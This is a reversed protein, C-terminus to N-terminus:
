IKSHKIAERYEKPTKGTQRKFIKSFYQVDMIGCHLSVTQIQLDTTSFLHMARNIRRERIYETLTEGTEKKFVGSLYPLSVGALEALKVPALDAGLDYSILSVVKQVVASYGRVTHKRVMRCYSEYMERMLASCAKAATLKEIKIAYDTSMKDIFVPHVGGQEASKRLLTNMIIAYNKLNRLQDAARMEFGGEGLASILQNVKQLNGASVSHMLENEFSYRKEILKMHLASSELDGSDSVSDFGLMSADGRQEMDVISYQRGEYARELFVNLFLFLESDESLSPISIMHKLYLPHLKPDIKERELAERLKTETQEADSYPGLYVSRKGKGKGISFVMGFFSLGDRLRYVLPNGNKDRSPKESAGLISEWLGSLMLEEPIDEGSVERSVLAMTVGRKGFVESLLEFENKNFM